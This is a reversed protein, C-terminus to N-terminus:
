KGEALLAATARRYAELNDATPAKRWAHYARSQERALQHHTM